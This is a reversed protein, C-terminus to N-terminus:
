QFGSGKYKKMLGIFFPGGILATMLGLPIESGTITRALLDIWVLFAAGISFSAPLLKRNDNGVASRAIHPVVLGIWGISGAISVAGATALTAGAIVRARITQTSIGMSRAEREGMSLLNLPWASWLVLVVGVIMTGLAFPLLSLDVSALSGLTWFVISALERGPDAIYKMLALLSAFISSVITGALVLMIQSVQGWIRAVAHTLLVAAIGFLFAFPPIFFSAPVWLIAMAAGFGAGNTVGLLGPSVLPNQFLSQFACGATALAGGVAAAVVARPLRVHTVVAITEQSVGMSLGTIGEVLGRMVESPTLVYRGIFLSVGVMAIPALGLLVYRSLKTPRRM